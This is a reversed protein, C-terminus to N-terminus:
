CPAELEVVVEGRGLLGSQAGTWVV